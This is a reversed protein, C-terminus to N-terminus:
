YAYYLAFLRVGSFGAWSRTCSFDNVPFVAVHVLVPTSDDDLEVCPDMFYTMFSVEQSHLTNFLACYVLNAPWVIRSVHYSHCLSATCVPWSTSMSPPSVLFRKAVGGISFGIMQTSMVVFWQDIAGNFDHYARSICHLLHSVHFTSSKTTTCGNFLSSTLQM